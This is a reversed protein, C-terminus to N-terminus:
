KFRQMLSLLLRKVLFTKAVAEDNDPLIAKTELVEKVAAVKAPIVVFTITTEDAKVAVEIQNGTRVQDIAIQAAAQENDAEILSTQTVLYFPM